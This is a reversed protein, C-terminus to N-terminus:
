YYSNMGACAAGGFALAACATCALVVGSICVGVIGCILGATAMGNRKGYPAIKGAKVGLIIAAIGLGLGLIAGWGMFGIVCSAIGLVMSWTSINKSPDEMAYGQQPYPQQGQYNMQDAAQQYANYNQQQQYTNQAPRSTNPYSTNSYPNANGNPSRYTNSYPNVNPAAGVNPNQSGNSMVNQPPVQPQPNGATFTPDSMTFGQGQVSNEPTVPNQQVNPDFESM